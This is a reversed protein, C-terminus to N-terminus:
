KLLVGILTAIACVATMIAVWNARSSKSSHHDDVHKEIKLHLASTNESLKASLANLHSCPAAHLCGEIRAQSVKMENIDSMMKDFKEESNM